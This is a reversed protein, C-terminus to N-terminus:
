CHSLLWPCRLGQHPSCPCSPLLRATPAASHLCVLVGAAAPSMSSAPPVHCSITPTQMALRLIISVVLALPFEHRHLLRLSVIHHLAARWGSEDQEDM